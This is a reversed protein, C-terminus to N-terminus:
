RFFKSGYLPACRRAAYQRFRIHIRSQKLSESVFIIRRTSYGRREAALGREKMPELTIASFRDVDFLNLEVACRMLRLQGFNDLILTGIWLDPCAAWFVPLRV